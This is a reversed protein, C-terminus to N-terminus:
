IDTIMTKGLKFSSNWSGNRVEFLLDDAREPFRERVCVSVEQKVQYYITRYDEPTEPLNIIIHDKFIGPDWHPPFKEKLLKLINEQLVEM